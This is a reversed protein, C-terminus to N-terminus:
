VGDTFFYICNKNFSMSVPRPQKILTHKAKFDIIQGKLTACM